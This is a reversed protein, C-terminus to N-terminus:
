PKNGPEAGVIEAQPLVVAVIAEGVADYKGGFHHAGPLILSKVFPDKLKSCICETDKDSGVCLFKMNKLADIEPEVAYSKASSPLKLLDTVHLEFITQASPGISVIWRVRQKLDDPIRNAVFPIIEAGLSYGALIIGQKNWKAMYHRLVRTMDATTSEPTCGKKFYRYSSIGVMPVGHKALTEAVARDLDWWGGDGSIMIGFTDTSTGEAATVEILPLDSVDPADTVPTNGGSTSKPEDGGAAAVVVYFLAAVAVRLRMIERAMKLRCDKEDRNDREDKSLSHM